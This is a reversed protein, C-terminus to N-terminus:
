RPGEADTEAGTRAASGSIDRLPPLDITFTAGRVEVSGGHRAAIARVIALGLGSGEGSAQPGRWFREFAHTAAEDDLGPGEDSVSVRGGNLAVTIRGDRPGYKGANEVLNAIARRLAEPDGAVASGRGEV